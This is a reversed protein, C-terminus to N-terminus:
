LVTALSRCVARAWYQTPNNPLLKSRDVGSTIKNMACVLLVCRKKFRPMVNKTTVTLCRTVIMKVKKPIINFTCSALKFSLKMIIAKQVRKKTDCFIQLGGDESTQVMLWATVNATFASTALWHFCRARLKRKICKKIIRICLWVGQSFNGRFLKLHISCNSNAM